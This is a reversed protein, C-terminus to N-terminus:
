RKVLMGVAPTFNTPRFYSEGRLVINSRGISAFLSVHHTIEFTGKFGYIWYNADGKRNDSKQDITLLNYGAFPSLTISRGTMNLNMDYALHFAYLSLITKQTGTNGSGEFEFFLGRYIRFYTGIQFGYSVFGSKERSLDDLNLPFRIFSLTYHFNDQTFYNLWNNGKKQNSLNQLRMIDLDPFKMLDGYRETNRLATDIGKLQEPQSSKAIRQTVDEEQIIEKYSFPNHSTTDIKTTIYDAITTPNEHKYITNGKTFAEQLYWKNNINSYRVHYQLKSKPLTGYKSINYYSVDAGAFAYTATDIFLTGGTAKQKGISDNRSFNIVFAQRNHYMRKGMLQYKFNKLRKLDIFPENNKVFDSHVPALYGGIWKIFILSKDSTTDIYNQLVKVLPRKGNNISPTYIQIIANSNFLDSNNRLFQLRMFGTAQYPKDAYNRPILSIARTLISLGSGM